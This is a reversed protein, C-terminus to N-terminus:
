RRDEDVMEQVVADLMLKEQVFRRYAEIKVQQNQVIQEQQALRLAYKERLNEEKLKKDEEEQERWALMQAELHAKERMQQISYFDSVSM